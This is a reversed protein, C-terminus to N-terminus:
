GTIRIFVSGGSGAFRVLANAVAASKADNVQVVVPQDLQAGVGAVQKEGSVLVVASGFAKPGPEAPGAARRACGSAIALVLIIGARWTWWPQNM